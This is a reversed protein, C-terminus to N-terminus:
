VFFPQVRQLIEYIMLIDTGALLFHDTHGKKEQITLYGLKQHRESQLESQTEEGDEQYLKTAGSIDNASELIMRIEDYESGEYKVKYKDKIVLLAEKAEKLDCEYNEKYWEAAKLFGVTELKKVIEYDEDNIKQVKGNIEQEM